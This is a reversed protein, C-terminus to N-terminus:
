AADRTFGAFRAPPLLRAEAELVDGVRAGCHERSQRTLRRERFQSQAAAKAARVWASM